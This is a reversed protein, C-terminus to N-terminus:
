PPGPDHPGLTLIEYGRRTIAVTHEYHASLKRDATVVTWGDPLHEVEPVGANVMPEIALTMGELLRPNPHEPAVYNPIQPPEHLHKGVGHGVMDRVVSFGEREVCSQVGRSIDLLAGRSTIAHIGAWLSARTVKMLRTAEESVSGVPVTLASDAHFGKLRIGFDLKILDGERLVREKSPIGHVVEENISACISAPYVLKGVRYGLFSPSGGYGRAMERAIRDLELTSVGPAVADRLAALVLSVVRGAERMRELDRANKYVIRGM